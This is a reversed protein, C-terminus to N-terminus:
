AEGVITVKPLRKLYNKLEKLDKTEYINDPLEEERAISEEVWEIVDNEEDYCIVLNYIKKNNTM